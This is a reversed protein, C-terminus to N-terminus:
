PAERWSDVLIQYETYPEELKQGAGGATGVAIVKGTVEIKKGASVGLPQKTYIVIQPSQLNDLYAEYNYGDRPSVLHQQMLNSVTGIYKVPKEVCESLPGNCFQVSSDDSMSKPSLSTFLLVGAGVIALAAILFLFNKQMTNQRITRICKFKQTMALSGFSHRGAM